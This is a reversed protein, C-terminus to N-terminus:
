SDGIKHDFNINRNYAYMQYLCNPPTSELHKNDNIIILKFKTITIKLQPLTKQIKPSERLTYIFKSEDM